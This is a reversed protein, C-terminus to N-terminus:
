GGGGNLDTRKGLRDLLGLDEVLNTLGHVSMTLAFWPLILYFHWAPLGLVPTVETYLFNFSAMEYTPIDFGAAWLGPLDFWRWCLWALAAGFGAALASATVRLARVLAPGAVEHVIKV